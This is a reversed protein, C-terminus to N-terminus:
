VCKPMDPSVKSVRKPRTPTVKEHNKPLRPFHRPLPGPVHKSMHQFTKFFIDSPTWFIFNEFIAPLIKGSDPRKLIANKVYERDFLILM